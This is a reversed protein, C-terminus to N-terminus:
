YTLSRVIIRAMTEDSEACDRNLWAQIIAYFRAHRSVFEYRIETESFASTDYQKREILHEDVRALHAEYRARCESDQLYARCLLRNQRAVSLIQM